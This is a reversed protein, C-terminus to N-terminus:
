FVASDIVTDLNRKCIYAHESIIQMTFVHVLGPWLWLLQAPLLTM